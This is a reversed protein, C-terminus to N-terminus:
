HVRQPESAGPQTEPRLLLSGVVSLSQESDPLLKLGLDVFRVSLLSGPWGLWGTLPKKRPNASLVRLRLLLLLQPMSSEPSAVLLEAM